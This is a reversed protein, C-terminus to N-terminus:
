GRTGIVQVLLLLSLVAVVAMSESLNTHEKPKEHSRLLCSQASQRVEHHTALGFLKVPAQYCPLRMTTHGYVTYPKALDLRSGRPRALHTAAGTRTAVSSGDGLNRPRM